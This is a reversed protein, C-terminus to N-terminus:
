GINVVVRELTHSMNGGVQLSMSWSKEVCVASFEKYQIATVDEVGYGPLLATTVTITEASIMSKDRLQDAYEQLEAQSAINDVNTLQVIRRGRRAISLPSEPNVNESRAIMVDEKDPNSCVCIFVNPAKYIDMSRSIGPLMLSKVTTDDLTHQINEATPVSAPEIIAVGDFNFWLPKFNIESLLQNIITLYSTGMEWDERDEVLVAETPTASILAIGANALLTNVASVYNTGAAIFYMSDVVTDKLIWCRDFAEVNVSKSTSDEIHRVSAPLYVGIPSVVGDIVLEVRIQDSLWDVSEGPDVFSGSLSSKIEGTTNMRITPSSGSSPYLRSCDAGNRVTIYRFSIERMM